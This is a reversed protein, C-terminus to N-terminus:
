DPLESTKAAQWCLEIVVRQEDMLALVSDPLLFRVDLGALWRTRIRTASIELMPFPLFWCSRGAAMEARLIGERSSAFVTTGPWFRNLTALFLSSSTGSRPVVAMDMVGPLECGRWWKDLCAFDEDGLVFLPALGTRKRLVHATNWTYSPPPLEEELLSVGLRPMDCLAAELMRVRLDYPLLGKQPKHPPSACPMLDVRELHLTEAVEQALRIHGIHVPNFTGGLIATRGAPLPMADERFEKRWASM